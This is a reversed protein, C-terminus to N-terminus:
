AERQLTGDELRYIIDMSSALAQNHTVVVLAIQFRDSLQLALAQIEAATRRDLSGTPEDMFICGPRGVFARAIAVRQREGGSLQAPRHMLRDEMGLDTLISRSRAMAEARSLERLLLPMAVNELASFEALLHHFQYVFGIHHRRLRAAEDPKLRHVALDAIHIEGQDIPELGCLTYLLTSKGSGSVGTVAVRQGQGLVLNVGQLISLPRNGQRYSKHLDIARLFPKSM